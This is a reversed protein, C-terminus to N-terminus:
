CGGSGSFFDELPAEESRSGYGLRKLVGRVDDEAVKDRDAEVQLKGLTYSVRVQRVGDLSLVAKEIKRACEICDMGEVGFTM